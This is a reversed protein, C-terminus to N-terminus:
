LLKLENEIALKTKPSIGKGEARTLEAEIRAKREAVEARYREYKLGGDSLRTLVTVLRMYNAPDGTLKKKLSKPNLDMLLEYIQVAALQLGAEQVATGSNERVMQLAFERKLQMEELRQQEKLWAPHGDRRWCVLMKKTLTQGAEAMKRIIEAYRAGDRLMVNVQHRLDPPLCFITSSPRRNMFPSHLIFFPSHPNPIEFHELPKTGTKERM